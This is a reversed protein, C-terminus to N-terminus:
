LCLVARAMRDVEAKPLDPLVHALNMRIRKRFGGIPALVHATLWGMGRVRTEYPMLMATGIAARIVINVTYDVAKQGFSDKEAAM